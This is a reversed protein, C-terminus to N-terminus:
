SVKTLKFTIKMFIECFKILDGRFIQLIECIETQLLHCTHMIINQGGGGGEGM